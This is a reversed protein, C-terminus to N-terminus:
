FGFRVGVELKRPGAAATPRGYFPSTLVGSYAMANMRNALNTGALYLEVRFRRGEAGGSFGGMSTEAPPGGVTRLMIVPTGGGGNATRPGFGFAWSLRSGLEWRGAGRASNRGTGAPRDNSVTDRNDDFGTTVTYPLGSSSNVTAALKVSGWLTTNLM